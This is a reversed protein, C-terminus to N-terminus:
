GEAPPASPKVENDPWTLEQGAIGDLVTIENVTRGLMNKTKKRRFHATRVQDTIQPVSTPMLILQMMSQNPVAMAKEGVYTSGKFDLATGSLTVNLGPDKNYNPDSYYRIDVKYEGKPLGYDTTTATAQVGFPGGDVLTGATTGWPKAQVDQLDFGPPGEYKIDVKQNSYDEGVSIVKWSADPAYIEQLLYDAVMISWPGDLPQTLLFKVARSLHRTGLEPDDVVEQIIRIQRAVNTLVQPLHAVAEFSPITIGLRADSRIQVSQSPFPVNQLPM